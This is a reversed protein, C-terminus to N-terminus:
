RSFLTLKKMSWPQDGKSNAEIKLYGSKGQPKWNFTNLGQIGKEQGVKTWSNGDSSIFVSYSIPFGDKGSDFQVETLAQPTPLQVTFWMGPEQSTETKWGKFSFAYSPDKTSGVGSLATSSAKTIWNDQFTLPKPIEGILEYFSYAANRNKTEKRVKAVYEPSIFSGSNGFDNRIYSLVSAIYADDNSDMAIMVGEYEKSDIPGSLGHLLVKVAYEPHNLIRPSGSFSPAILRGEGAPSGLGKPGHCTSCYNNYISKGKVFLALENKEFRTESAKKAEEMKELLQSGVVQVGNSSNKKLTEKILIDVKDIKLVHASLLAQIIVDTDKDMVSKRYVESLSKKGYKYLTEAARLGQIRINPNPDETFKKVLDSELEGLGELTWLAHIRALENSSSEAMTILDPVISKDQNLIITQQAMDRWWGNPHELHRILEKSSEDYMRPKQTNRPMGDYSLRWIRGNGIIDDMQYQQIKTRLYSGEQTWEGEQIIGRYLDVIYLTGDPATAMDVPRFLPDSSQIFESGEKEYKNQLYSLGEVNETEVRRVIRGVPEGYLYDGVLDKPLRDGRFVDNGAAGTVNSLSGDPKAEQMGPQFDELRVLSYPVRFGKKLAGEVQFNGYVIPFQFGQPVGGAGDQFFLKGYNDQTVGWQGWPNGSEEQIVGTPTWRIRKNNYTSYMWNDLAWTLFSTQHEVNGSRGLGSAFLEKQDAIGDLNTDTYRYVHDENSEMSLISNPGFPVVYRPFVLSDLFVTGTEYVGDDDLDEWRSIRSTPLLEGTADLDQMYSRLELVYMRGNGDFQIAAPERIQPESLVPDMKYGPKLVFSNKQENASVPVIPPKPSLDIGKWIRSELDVGEPISINPYPETLRKPDMSEAPSVDFPSREPKQCGFSFCVLLANFVIIKKLYGM